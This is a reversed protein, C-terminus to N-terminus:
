STVTLSSQIRLSTMKEGAKSFYLPYMVYLSYNVDSMCRSQLNLRAIPHSSITFDAEILDNLM